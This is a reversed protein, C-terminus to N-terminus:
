HVDVLFSLCLHHRHSCRCVHQDAEKKTAFKLYFLDCMGDMSLELATRSYGQELRKKTNGGDNDTATRNVLASMITGKLDSFSGQLEGHLAM